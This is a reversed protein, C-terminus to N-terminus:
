RRTKPEIKEPGNPSLRTGGGCTPCTVEISWFQGRADALDTIALHKKQIEGVTQEIVEESRKTADTDLDCADALEGDVM